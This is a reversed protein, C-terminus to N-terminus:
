IRQCAAPASAATVQLSSASRHKDSCLISVYHDRLLWLMSFIQSSVIYQASRSCPNRRRYSGEEPLDIRDKTKSRRAFTRKDALCQDNVAAIIGDLDSTYLGPGTKAM